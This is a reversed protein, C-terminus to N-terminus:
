VAGTSNRQIVECGQILRHIPGGDPNRILELAMRAAEKGIAEIPPAVASLGVRKLRLAANDELVILAVDAPVRLGMTELHELPLLGVRNNRVFITDRREGDSRPEEKRTPREAFAPASIDCLLSAGHRKRLRKRYTREIMM